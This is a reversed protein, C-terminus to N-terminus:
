VNNLFFFLYNYLIAGKPFLTDYRNFNSPFTQSPGQSLSPKFFWKFFGYAQPKQIEDYHFM